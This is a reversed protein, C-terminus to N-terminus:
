GLLTPQPEGPDRGRLRLSRLALEELTLVQTLVVGHWPYRRWCVTAEMTPLLSSGFRLRMGLPLRLETDLRAGQRSINRLTGAVEDGGAVIAVQHDVALRVARRPHVGADAIFADVAVPHVFRFGGEGDREWVQELGFRTGDANELALPEGDRPLPHFLRLRVGSSSVDRVICLMEGKADVLKAIRLLLAFRPAARQDRAAGPESLQLPEPLKM